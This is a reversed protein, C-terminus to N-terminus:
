LPENIKMVKKYKERFFTLAASKVGKCIVTNNTNKLVHLHRKQFCGNESSKQKETQMLNHIVCSNNSSRRLDGILRFQAFKADCISRLFSCSGKFM